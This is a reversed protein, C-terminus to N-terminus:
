LEYNIELTQMSKAYSILSSAQGKSIERIMIGLSELRKLQAFSAVDKKWRNKQNHRKEFYFQAKENCLEICTVSDGYGLIQFNSEELNVFFAAYVNANNFCEHSIRLNFNKSKQIKSIKIILCCKTDAFSVICDNYISVIDLNSNTIIQYAKTYVNGGQFHLIHRRQAITLIYDEFFEQTINKISKTKIKEDIKPIKEGSIDSFQYLTNEKDTFDLILANLKNETKRLARGVAQIYFLESNTPRCFLVCDLKPFDFGETLISVNSLVAYEGNKFQNIIETRNKLTHDIHIAKIGEEKLREVLAKSSEIDACFAITKRDKAHKLYTETVKELWNTAKIVALLEDSLNAGWNQNKKIEIDCITKFSEVKSLFNNEVFYSIPKYYIIKKFVNNLGVNDTRNVTATFGLVINFKDILNKYSFAVAHHAEDIILIDYQRFVEPKNYIYQVTFVDVNSSLKIKEKIQEVIEQRHVIILIKELRTKCFESFIVTKGVGTPLIVLGKLKQNCANICEILAERQYERLDM